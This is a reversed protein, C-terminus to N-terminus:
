DLKSRDVYRLGFGLQGVVFITSSTGWVDYLPEGGFRHEVWQSGDYHLFVGRFGVVFIDAASGCWISFLDYETDTHLSRWRSGNYHLVTGSAGAVYVDDASIGWISSLTHSSGTNMLEWQTGDYHHVERGAIVFVEDTSCWVDWFNDETLEYDVPTWKSGDYHLIPGASGKWLSGSLSGGVAFVNNPSTGYVGRLCELTGSNMETWSSGNYHVITGEDGVAFADHPSSGWIDLLNNSTSSAMSVLKSGDYRFIAGSMGVAFIDDASTGWVAFLAKDYYAASLPIACVAIWCTIIILLAFAKSCVM